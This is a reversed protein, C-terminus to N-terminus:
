GDLHGRHAERFRSVLTNAVEWHGVDMSREGFKLCEMITNEVHHTRDQFVHHLITEAVGMNYSDIGSFTVKYVPYPREVPLEGGWPEAEIYDHCEGIQPIGLDSLFEPWEDPDDFM